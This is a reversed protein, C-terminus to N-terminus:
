VLVHNMCEKNCTETLLKTKFSTHHLTYPVQFEARELKQSLDAIQQTTYDANQLSPFWHEFACRGCKVLLLQSNDHLLIVTHQGLVQEM